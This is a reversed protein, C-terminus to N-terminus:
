KIEAGEGLIKIVAKGRTIKSVDFKENHNEARKKEIEIVEEKTYKKVSFTGEALVNKGKASIPFVIVGDEVKFKISEFDFEGAIEIWCGRNECVNVIKGEVLIKKGDYKEPNKILDSIKTKEKISIKKGYKKQGAFVIISFAFFLILFKSYM